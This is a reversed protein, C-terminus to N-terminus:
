GVSIWALLPGWPAPAGADWSQLRVADEDNGSVAATTEDWRECFAVHGLGGALPSQGDRGYVLLDGPLPTEATPPLRLAGCTRADAVLEAVAARLTFPPLDHAVHDAPEWMLAIEPTVREAGLAARWAIESAFRACWALGLVHILGRGRVCWPAFTDVEPGRNPATEQVGLQALALELARQRLPATQSPGSM